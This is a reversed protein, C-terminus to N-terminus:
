FGCGAGMSSLANIVALKQEPESLSCGDGQAAGETLRCACADLDIPLAREVCMKIAANAAEAVTSGQALSRTAEHGPFEARCEVASAHTVNAVLMTASLVFIVKHM